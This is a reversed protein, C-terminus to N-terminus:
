TLNLGIYDTYPKIAAKMEDNLKDYSEKTYNTYNRDNNYKKGVAGPGSIDRLVMFLEEIMPLKKPNIRLDDFINVLTVADPMIMDANAKSHITEIFHKLLKIINPNNHETVGGLILDLTHRVIWNYDIRRRRAAYNPAFTAWVNKIRELQAASLKGLMGDQVFFTSDISSGLQDGKWSPTNGKTYNKITISDASTFGNLIGDMIRDAPDVVTDSQLKKHRHDPSGDYVYISKWFEQASGYGKALLVPAALRKLDRSAKQYLEWPTKAEFKFDLAANLWFHGSGIRYSDLKNLVSGSNHQISFMHDIWIYLDKDPAKELNLWGKAIKGWEKGGYSEDWDGKDFIHQAGEVFEKETRTTKKATEYAKYRKEAANSYLGGQPINPKSDADWNHNFERMLDISKKGLNMLYRRSNLMQDDGYREETQWEAPIAHRFESAMAFFAADLLEKKITPLLKERIHKLAQREQFHERFEWSGGEVQPYRDIAELTYFDFLLKEKNDPIRYPYSAELLLNHLELFKM